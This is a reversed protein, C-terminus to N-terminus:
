ADTWEVISDAWKLKFMIALDDDDTEFCVTFPKSPLGKMLKEYSVEFEEMPDPRIGYGQMFPFGLSLLWEIIEENAALLFHINHKAM